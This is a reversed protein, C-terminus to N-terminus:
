GRVGWRFQDACPPDTTTERHGSWRSRSRLKLVVAMYNGLQVSSSTQHYRAGLRRFRCLRSPLAASETTQQSERNENPPFAICSVVTISCSWGIPAIRLGTGAGAGVM